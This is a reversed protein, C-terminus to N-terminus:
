TNEYDKEIFGKLVHLAQLYQDQLVVNTSIVVNSGIYVLLM